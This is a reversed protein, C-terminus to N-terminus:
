LLGPCSIVLGASMNKAVQKKSDRATLQEYMHGNIIPTVINETSGDRLRIPTVRWDLSVRFADAWEQLQASYTRDGTPESFGRFPPM